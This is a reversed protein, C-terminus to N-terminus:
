DGAGCACVGKGSGVLSIALCERELRQVESTSLTADQSATETLIGSDQLHTAWGRIAPTPHLSLPAPCQGATTTTSVVKFVGNAPPTGILPNSTLDVDVSLTRLGDPSLYCSCCETMEQDADLVYIAACLPGGSTGPNTLRMTQGISGGINAFYDVKLTDAPPPATQAAAYGACLALVLTCAAFTGRRM